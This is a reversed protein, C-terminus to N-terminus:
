LRELFDKNVIKTIESNQEKSGDALCLEWNSYTPDILSDVLEKFFNIPTQYMPVIISIKPEIEFKTKRQEQLEKKNPENFYIWKQYDDMKLMTTVPDQGTIIRKIKQMVKKICKKITKLIGYKNKYYIIQEKIHRINM